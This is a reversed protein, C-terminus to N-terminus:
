GGLGTLRWIGDLVLGAGFILAVVTVARRIGPAFRRWARQLRGGIEAGPHIANVLVLGILLIQAIVFWLVLLAVRLWPDHVRAVVAIAAYYAPDVLATVGFGLGAVAMAPVSIGKPAKAPKDTPPRLARWVAWGILGLGTVLSIAAWVYGPLHLWPKIEAEIPGLAHGAVVAVALPVVASSALFMAAAARSAGMMLAAAVLLAGFPDFGAVGLGLVGLLVVVSM